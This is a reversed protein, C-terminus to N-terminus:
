KQKHPNNTMLLRAKEMILHAHHNHAVERLEMMLLLIAPQALVVKVESQVVLDLQRIYASVKITAMEEKTVMVMHVVLESISTARSARLKVDVATALRMLNSVSTTMTHVVVM